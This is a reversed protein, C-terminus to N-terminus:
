EASVGSREVVKKWEAAELRLREVTEAPTKGGPIWGQELYKAQLDPSSLAERVAGALRNISERDTERPAALAWWNSAITGRPIGAEAATPVDPLSRLRQDAGVALARLKGSRLLPAISGYSHVVMQIENALLAVIAPPNGKFAVHVMDAGLTDSLMFASLHPVTAPGPSGYNLKGRNAKAYAAFDAYSRVPLNGSVVLLYPTDAVVTVPVLAQLPDFGLNKFLFQNIVLNHTPAFILTYGDPASRVVERVGINGSAGARFDVIVTQGLRKEIGPAISRLIIDGSGGPTTPVVVRIPKEPWAALPAECVLALATLAAALFLSRM